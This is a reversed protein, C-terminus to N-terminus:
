IHILSPEDLESLIDGEFEKGYLDILRRRDFGSVQELLDAIDAPHLPSMLALLQDQDSVEVAYLIAAVAKRDLAYVDTRSITEASHIETQDRM